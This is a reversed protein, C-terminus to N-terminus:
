SPIEARYFRYQKAPAGAAMRCLSFMPRNAELVWSLEVWDYARLHTKELLATVLLALIKAGLVSRQYERRIGLLPIRFRRSRVDKMDRYLRWWNFPLLRGGFSAIVENFDPIIMAFGVPQGGIEVVAGFEDRFFPKIDRAMARVDADTWPVFGWNGSWADNFIEVFQRMEDALREGRAKRVTLEGGELALRALKRIPTADVSGRVRFAYADMAKSFGAGEVLRAAYPRSQDMLMAAPEDFGDVLLGSEENITLSFPGIVSRCGRLALWAKAAGFLANSVDMDDICDFFGFHGADPDHLAQFAPNVQASVRGVPRGGRYAVFFAATGTKFFPSFWRAIRLREKIDLQRIFHPDDKHVLVPVAVWDSFAAGHGLERIEIPSM